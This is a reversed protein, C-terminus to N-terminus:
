GQKHSSDWSLHGQWAWPWPWSAGCKKSRTPHNCHINIAQQFCSFVPKYYCYALILCHLVTSYMFIISNNIHRHSFNELRCLNVGHKVEELFSVYRPSVSPKMTERLLSTAIPLCLFVVGPNAHRIKKPLNVM